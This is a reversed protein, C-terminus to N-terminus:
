FINKSVSKLKLIKTFFYIVIFFHSQIMMSKIQDEINALFSCIRSCLSSFMLQIELLQLTSAKSPFVSSFQLLGESFEIM